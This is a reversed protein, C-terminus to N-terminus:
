FYLLKATCVKEVIHSIISSHFLSLLFRETIDKCNIRYKRSQMLESISFIKYVSILDSILIFPSKDPEKARIHIRRVHTKSDM